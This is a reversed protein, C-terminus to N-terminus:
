AEGDALSQSHKIGVVHVPSPVHNGYTPHQRRIAVVRRPPPREDDCLYAPEFLLVQHRGVARREQRQSLFLERFEPSGLGRRLTESRRRWWSPQHRSSRQTVQPGHRLWPPIWLREPEAFLAAGTTVFNCWHQVLAPCIAWSLRESIFNMSS